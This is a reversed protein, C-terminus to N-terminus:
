VVFFPYKIKIKNKEESGRKSEFRMVKMNM